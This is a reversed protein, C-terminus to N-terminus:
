RQRQRQKDPHKRGKLGGVTVGVEERNKERERM